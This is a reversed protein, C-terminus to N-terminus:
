RLLAGIDDIAEPIWWTWDHGGSPTRTTADVGQARLRSALREGRAPGDGEYRGHHLRVRSGAPVADCIADDLAPDPYRWYSTSQAVAAAVRGEGHLLAFLASLGGFSSGTVITDDPSVPGLVGDRHLRPVLDRGVREANGGPVGLIEARADGSDVFALAVDPLVGAAHAGAAISATGQREIHGEGDFWVVLPAPRSPDGLRALRVGPELEVIRPGAGGALWPKDAGLRVVGTTAAEVGEIPQDRGGRRIGLGYMHWAPAGQGRHELIEFRTQWDGPVRFAATWWGDGAPELDCADVPDPWRWGSASVAVAAADSRHWFRVTAEGGSAEEVLWGAAPPASPASSARPVRVGGGMGPRPLPTLEEFARM